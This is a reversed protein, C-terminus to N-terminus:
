CFLCLRFFLVFFSVHCECLPSRVQVNNMSREWYKIVGGDDASVMWQGSRSWVTSHVLQMIIQLSNQTRLHAVLFFTV